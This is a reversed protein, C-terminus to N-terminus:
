GNEQERKQRMLLGIKPKAQPLIPVTNGMTKPNYHVFFGDSDIHALDKNGTSKKNILGVVVGDSGEPQIEMPRFDHDVGNVVRYKKNTETDHVFEPLVKSKNSFVMAVNQGQDLFNRMKNWNTYPNEVGEQTLGTSSHTIHHNESIPKYGMKSYDYFSVNPQNEFISKFVRPALDSLTNVRVGLHNGNMRAMQRTSEIDDFLKIAFAEPERLMAKTRNLARERATVKGVNKQAIDFHESYQGSTKGLCAGSCSASNPCLKLDGEKYDPYLSLGWTEVGRGDPLKIPEENETGKNTKELKSNQTIIAPLSGDKNKGLYPELAKAAMQSNRIREGEGLALHRQIARDFIQGLSNTNAKGEELKAFQYNETEGSRVPAAGEPQIAFRPRSVMTPPNNHGMPPPPIDDPVGGSMMVQRGVNPMYQTPFQKSLILGGESKLLDRSKKDEPNFQANVSRIHDAHKDFVAILTSPKMASGLPGTQFMGPDKINQLVIGKKKGKKAEGLASKMWTAKYPAGGMDWIDFNDEDLNKIRVPYVQAGKTYVRGVNDGMPAIGHEIAAPSDARVYQGSLYSDAVEPSSTFFHAKEGTANAWDQLEFQPFDSHGAHYFTTPDFGMDAADKQREDTTKGGFSKAARQQERMAEKKRREEEKPPIWGGAARKMAADSLYKIANNLTSKSDFAM